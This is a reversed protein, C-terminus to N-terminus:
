MCHACGAQNFPINILLQEDADSALVLDDQERYGQKIANALTGARQNLCEAGAPCRHLM